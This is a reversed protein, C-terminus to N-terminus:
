FTLDTLISSVREIEDLYSSTKKYEIFADFAEVYFQMLSNMIETPITESKKVSVYDAIFQSKVIKTAREEKTPIYKNLDDKSMYFGINTLEVDCFNYTYCTHNPTPKYVLNWDKERQKWDKKSVYSPMDTSDQYHYDHIYDLENWANIFVKQEAFFLILTKDKTPYVCCYCEFDIDVERVGNKLKKDVNELAVDHLNNKIDTLSEKSDILSKEDYKFVSERSIYKFYGEKKINEFVLKLKSFENLLENINKTSYYGNYIKTSM